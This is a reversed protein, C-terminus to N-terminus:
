GDVHDVRNSRAIAEIRSINVAEKLAFTLLCAKFIRICRASKGGCFLPACFSKAVTCIHCPEKVLMQSDYLTGEYCKESVM